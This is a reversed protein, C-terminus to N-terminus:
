WRDAIDANSLGDALLALVETERRVAARDHPCRAGAARTGGPRSALGERRYAPFAAERVAVAADYQGLWQLAQALGEMADPGEGLELAREFCERAKEWEAEALAQRGTLLLDHRAARQV